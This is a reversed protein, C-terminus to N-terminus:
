LTRKGIQYLKDMKWEQKWEVQHLAFYQQLQSKTLKSFSRKQFFEEEKPTLQRVKHYKANDLFFLLYIIKM